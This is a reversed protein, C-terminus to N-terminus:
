VEGTGEVTCLIIQQSTEQTDSARSKMDQLTKLTQIRTMDLGHSHENVNGVIESGKVEIKAKCQLCFSCNLSM